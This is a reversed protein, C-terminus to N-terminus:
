GGPGVVVSGLVRGRCNRIVEVAEAAARGSTHNLHVVLYAGTCCGAMPAVEGHILSAADILVLPYEGGLDELLPGIDLQEPMRGGPASYRVGPLVSLGNIMTHCVAERWNAGATLVDILGFEAVVGLRSALSPNRLNADVALVDRPTREVLAAALSVLLETKGAADTPSTFMLSAPGDPPLQSLVREALEGYATVHEETPLVPWRAFQLDPPAAEEAEPCELALAQEVAEAIQEVAELGPLISEVDPLIPEVDPLGRGSKAEIQQLAKLTRSM